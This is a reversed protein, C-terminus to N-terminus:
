VKVGIVPRIRQAAGCHSRCFVTSLLCSRKLLELRIFLLMLLFRPLTESLLFCLLDSRSLGTRQKVAQEGVAGKEWEM